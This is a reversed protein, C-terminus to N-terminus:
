SSWKDFQDELYKRVCHECVLLTYEFKGCTKCQKNIPKKLWMINYIDHKLLINLIAHDKEEQTLSQDKKIYQIKAEYTENIDGDYLLDAESLAERVKATM